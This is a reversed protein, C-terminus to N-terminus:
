FILVDEPDYTNKAGYHEIKSQYKKGLNYFRISDKNEDMIKILQHKLLMLEDPQLLCEFVSNQVRQGYKECQEYFTSKNFLQDFKDEGVIPIIYSDSIKEIKDRNHIIHRVYYDTNGFLIKKKDPYKKQIFRLAKILVEDTLLDEFYYGEVIKSFATPFIPHQGLVITKIGYAEYFARAVAYSNMDGGLVVGTFQKDKM